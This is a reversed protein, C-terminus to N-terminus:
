KSDKVQEMVEQAFDKEEKEIGEGVEIRMFSHVSANHQKLLQAVTQNPDKVFPQGELCVEKIFKNVRGTVMKEIIEAPKGSQEAQTQAIERENAVLAQDVEAATLAAPNMAAVHMAVDVGIEQNDADFDVLVAIRHGHEYRALKGEAKVLHYRRVKINEGLSLVLGQCADSVTGDEFEHALLADLDAVKNKLALQSVSDIFAVFSENKSVFDTECNVELLVGHAGDEAVASRVLGEATVRSAKKAARVKGDERSAKIAAEIDGDCQTLYKKCDMFGLGTQERLEKILSASISM